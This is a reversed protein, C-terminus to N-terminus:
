CSSLKGSQHLEFQRASRGHVVIVLDISISVCRPATHQRRRSRMVAPHMHRGSRARRHGDVRCVADRWATITRAICMKGADTQGIWGNTLWSAPQLPLTNPESKLAGTTERSSSICALRAIMLPVALVACPTEMLAKGSLLNDAESVASGPKGAVVPTSLLRQERETGRLGPYSGRIM